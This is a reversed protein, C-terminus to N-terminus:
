HTQDGYVSGENGSDRSNITIGSLCISLLRQSLIYSLGETSPLWLRQEMEQLQKGKPNIEQSSNAKERIVISKGTLIDRQKERFSGSGEKLSM